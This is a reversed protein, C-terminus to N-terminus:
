GDLDRGEVNLSAQVRPHLFPYGRFTTIKGSNAQKVYFPQLCVDIVNFSRSSGFYPNKIIKKSKQSCLLSNRRFPYLYVLVVQLCPSSYARARRMLTLEFKEFQLSSLKNFVSTVRFSFLQIYVIVYLYRLICFM